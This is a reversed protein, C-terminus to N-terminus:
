TEWEGGVGEVGGRAFWMCMDCMGGVSRVVRIELVDWASALVGSGRTGGMYASVAVVDGRSWVGANGDGEYGLLRASFVFLLVHMVTVAVVAGVIYPVVVVECVSLPSGLVVIGM